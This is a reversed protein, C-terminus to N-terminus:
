WLTEKGKKEQSLCDSEPNIEKKRKDLFIEHLNATKGYAYWPFFEISECQEKSFGNSLSIHICANLHELFFYIFFISWLLTWKFTIALPSIFKIFAKNDTQAKYYRGEQDPLSLCSPQATRKMNCIIQAASSM